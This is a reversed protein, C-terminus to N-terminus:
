RARQDPWIVQVADALTVSAVIAGAEDTVDIRFNLDLEGRRCEDAALDRAAHHAVAVALAVDDLEIGEDDDAVIRDYAHFFYRPM